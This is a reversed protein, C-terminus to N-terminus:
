KSSYQKMVEGIIKIGEEIEDKNVYAFRLRMQNEGGSDLYFLRGLSFAVGKRLCAKWVAALDIYAPVTVWLYVGGQPKIYTTEPPFCDEIAKMMTDRRETLRRKLYRIYTAMYGRNHFETVISQLFPTTCLDNFRKVEALLNIVEKSAAIWGLRMGPILTKSFTGIYIVQGSNDLSKLLPLEPGSIQLDSGYDDEVIPIQYQEALAVIKGRRDIRMNTGTPNQYTPNTFIFKPRYKILVDELLHVKMGWEDVPIGIIKAQLFQFVTLAGTYTPNEIVVSEGPEILLRGILDIAQQAGNTIMIEDTEVQIGKQHLHHTVIKRLELNGISRSYEFLWKRTRIVSNIATQIKKIPFDQSGKQSWVFSIRVPNSESQYLTLLKGSIRKRLKDSLHRSWDFMNYFAIEDETDAKEPEIVFTGRGVHSYAYGEDELAKYAMIVTNRHIDLDEALKRTTPLRDGNRYQGHTILSKISEKLQVYLPTANSKNIHIDM